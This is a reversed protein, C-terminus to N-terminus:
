VLEKIKNTIERYRTIYTGIEYEEIGRTKHITILTKITDKITDSLTLNANGYVQKKVYDSVVKNNGDTEVILDNLLNAWLFLSTSKKDVERDSLYKSKVSATKELRKMVKESQLHSVFDNFKYLMANSKSELVDKLKVNNRTAIPLNFSKKIMVQSTLRLEARITNDFQLFFEASDMGYKREIVEKHNERKDGRQSFAEDPKYYFTISQNKRTDKTLVVGNINAFEEGDAQYTKLKTKIGQVSIAALASLTETIEKKSEYNNIPINFTNDLTRIEGLGIFAEEEIEGIGYKELAQIVDYITNKTIGIPYKNRLIKASISIDYIDRHPVYICHGLGLHNKKDRNFKLQQCEGYRELMLEETAENVKLDYNYNSKNRNIVDGPITLNITDFSNVKQTTQTKM